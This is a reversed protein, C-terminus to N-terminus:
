WRWSWVLLALGQLRLYGKFTVDALLKHSSICGLYWSVSRFVNFSKNYGYYVWWTPVFRHLLLKCLIQCFVDLCTQCSSFLLVQIKGKVTGFNFIFLPLVLDVLGVTRLLNCVPNTPSRGNTLIYHSCLLMVSPFLLECCSKVATVSVM